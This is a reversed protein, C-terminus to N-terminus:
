IYLSAFAPRVASTEFAPMVRPALEIGRWILLKIAECIQVGNIACHQQGAAILSSSCLVHICCYVRSFFFHQECTVILM